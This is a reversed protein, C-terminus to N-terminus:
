KFWSEELEEDSVGPRPAQTRPVIGSPRQSPAAPPASPRSPRFWPDDLEEEPEIVKSVFTLREPTAV